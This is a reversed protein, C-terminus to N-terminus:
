IIAHKEKYLLIPTAGTAMGLVCPLNQAQKERIVKAIQAALVNSGETPTTYVKVPVKEFSELM